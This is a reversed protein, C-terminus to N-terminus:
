PPQGPSAIDTLPLRAHSSRAGPTGLPTGEAGDRHRKARGNNPQALGLISRLTMYRDGCWEFWRSCANLSIIHADERRL